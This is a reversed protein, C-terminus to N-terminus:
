RTGTGLRGLLVQDVGWPHLTEPIDVLELRGPPDVRRRFVTAKLVGESRHMHRATKGTMEIGGETFGCFVTRGLSIDLLKEPYCGHEMIRTMAREAMEKIVIHQILILDGVLHDALPDDDLSHPLYDTLDPPARVAPEGRPFLQIRLVNGKEDTLPGVDGGV